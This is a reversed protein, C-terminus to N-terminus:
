RSEKESIVQAHNVIAVLSIGGVINGLLTPLLYGEFCRYWGEAGIMTLYFADISGAVVHPFQGLGVLYTMVIIIIARSSDAAPLMWVMIAILWGAFIARIFITTWAGELAARAIEVFAVRVEPTVLETRGAVSAIAWTGILNAILVVSWIRAVNRLTRLDRTLLLLLIVTLTNETFLQQRGLVVALFGITYGANAILHRWTAAPLYATLLGQGILSFGMSLGAALASWALAAVPRRLEEAGEARIAEHVVAVRLASREEALEFEAESLSPTRNTSSWDNKTMKRPAEENAPPPHEM